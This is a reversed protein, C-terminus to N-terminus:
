GHSSSFPINKQIAEKEINEDTIIEMGISEVLAREIRAGKSKEWGAVFYVADCDMMLSLSKRMWFTHNADNNSASATSDDVGGYVNILGFPNITRWGIAHIKTAAVNFHIGDTMGSIPGSLFVTKMKETRGEM